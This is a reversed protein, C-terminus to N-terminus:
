HGMLFTAGGAACGEGKNPACEAPKSTQAPYKTLETTHPRGTAKEMEEKYRELQRQGSKEGRPNDPKIERIHAKEEDYRDMRGKGSPTPM